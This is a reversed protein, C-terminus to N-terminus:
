FLDEKLKEDDLDNIDGLLDYISTQTEIIDGLENILNNPNNVKIEEITKELDKSLEQHSKQYISDDIINLSMDLPISKTDLIQVGHEFTDKPIENGKLVIKEKNSLVILEISEKYKSPNTIVGNIFLYPKSKVTKLYPTGRNGRKSRTINKLYIRKIAGRNTLLLVEEKYYNSALSSSVVEDQYKLSISKVGASKLSQLPVESKLYKLILGMKTAVLVEEMDKEEISVEKLEDDESLIICSGKKNKKELIINLDVFKVKGLRTSILLKTNKPYEKSIHNINVIKENGNVDYLSGIYAGLEKYKLEPIKYVPINIFSGFTTFLLITDKTNIQKNFIIYDDEKLGPESVNISAQYSKLSMKKIYGEKSIIVRVDEHIYLEEEKFAINDFSDQILTRRPVMIKKNVNELEEIIVKKLANENSLINELKNILATLEKQEEEFELIDTNTLKYIQLTVIAEAQLETFGFKNIINEKADSKNKSNSVTDVVEKIISSFKHFGDVIHLRKQAKDMEFNSRNRIIEKTHLIYSDIMDLVGLTKPSRDVISVMNYTYSKQLDSNKYLYNLIVNPNAETKTDIVIRLGEKDSEDRVELIGDIKKSSGILDIQKVLSSKVVEYPIENIIISHGEIKSKSRIVVKGKGSRFADILGNDKLIVGGTPFDPGPLIEMAEELTLNPKKLREITLNITENLNHPPINTAYGSSIGEAGNVLINPFKAPLVTPEVESDDYNPIFPITKKDIDYLLYNSALSLRSETYRMAAAPDGDISGCNGHMDILPINMKFPQSMRVLAEYVSSDGHPHFKGIVDGVIRASKKYPSDYTMGLKWMAYLIRRQVPKLGDRVDPIARDQIIYKSYKSFRDGMVNELYENQIKEEIFKDIIDKAKAM